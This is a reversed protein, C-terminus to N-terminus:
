RYEDDWVKADDKDTEITWSITMGDALPRVWKPPLVGGNWTEIEELARQAFAEFDEARPDLGEYVQDRPRQEDFEPHEKPARIFRTVKDELGRLGRKATRGRSIQECIHVWCEHSTAHPIDTLYTKQAGLRHALEM